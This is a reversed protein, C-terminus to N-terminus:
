EAQCAPFQEIVEESGELFFHRAATDFEHHKGKGHLLVRPTLLVWGREGDLFAM